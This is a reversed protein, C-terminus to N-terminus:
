QTLICYMICDIDDEDLGDIYKSGYKGDQLEGLTIVSRIITYCNQVTNINIDTNILLQMIAIVLNKILYM